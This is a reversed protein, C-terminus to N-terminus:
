NNVSILTGIGEGRQGDGGLGYGGKGRAMVVKNVRNDTDQHLVHIYQARQSNEVGEKMWYGGGWMGRVVILRSWIDM